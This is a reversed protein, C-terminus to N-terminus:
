KAMAEMQQQRVMQAEKETIFRINHKEKHANLAKGKEVLNENLTDKVKSLKNHNNTLFPVIEKVKMEVLSDSVLHHCTREGDLETLLKLVRDYERVEEDIRSIESVISAQEDRLKQFHEVIAKQDDSAKSDAMDT